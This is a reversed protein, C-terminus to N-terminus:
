VVVNCGSYPLVVSLYLFYFFIINIYLIFQTLYFPVLLLFFFCSDWHILLHILCFDVCCWCWLVVFWSVYFWGVIFMGFSTFFLRHVVYIASFSFDQLKQKAMQKQVTHSHIRIKFTFRSAVNHLWVCEIDNYIYVYIYFPKSVNM